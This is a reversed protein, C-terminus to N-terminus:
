RHEVHFVKAFEFLASDSGPIAVASMLQFDGMAAPATSSGFLVLRGGNALLQGCASWLAADTKVARVTVLDARRHENDPLEEFRSALVRADALDLTRVVERLFAAKRERSEIMTLKAAPKLVKLPVAPSGGGSGLDFWRLPTNDVLRSAFIPELLLRRLTATPYDALPLATLNITENWHQLLLYYEEFRQIELESLTIGTDATVDALRERFSSVNM